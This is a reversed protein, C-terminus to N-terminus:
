HRPEAVGAGNRARPILVRLAQPAIEFELPSPLLVPEGDIAAHLRPRRAEVTFRESAYEAWGEAGDIRAAAARALLAVLRTPAVAELVYAHLRGEDLRERAQLEGGEGVGYDNNAVLLLLSEHEERRGDVDFRLQLPRRTRGFAAPVLRAAAVLRNKTRHRPDHVLSAYLGLSVNNLFVRGGVLGVDVRREEGDGFAALAAVPDDVDLGLDRAFHNRTGAPVAVFPLEQELAVAAVRGLSGDGGAMGLATAGADAAAAAVDGADEREGLPHVDAGLKAAADTLEDLEGRGARPNVCLFPRAAAAIDLRRRRDRAADM